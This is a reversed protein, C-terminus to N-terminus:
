VENISKIQRGQAAFNDHSLWRIFRQNIMPWEGDIISFWATDRNRNKFVNSQRFIGEFSFGLRLAARKSAENLDNCKWEYRRYGLDDFAHRMMLYMAETAAPTQKLSRGFHIHGIEISGHEPTIRLYACLGQAKKSKNDVIAYFRRDHQATEFNLWATFSEYTKARERPLYTWSSEYDEGCLTKFLDPAHTDIALAEVSCFAGNMKAANPNPRAAWDAIYQGVRQDFENKDYM